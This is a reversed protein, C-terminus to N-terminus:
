IISFEEEAPKVTYQQSGARIRHPLLDNLPARIIEIWYPAGSEPAGEAEPCIAKL